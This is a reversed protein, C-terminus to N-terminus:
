SIKRLATLAEEMCINLLAEVDGEGSLGAAGAHGGGDCNMEKGIKMFFNALNFGMKVIGHKARASIRFREENQSGVFAVDAGLRILANCVDSEFAGIQSIAVICKGTSEMKLRQAGKLMSIKRSYDTAHEEDLVSFVEEMAVGSEEMIKSFTVLAQSNAHRFGATDTMIGVLLAKGIDDTIKKGALKLLEYVIEACSNKNEDCYYLDTKWEDTKIHHDLIIPNEIIHECDGLQSQSSADVIIVRDYDSLNPDEVVVVDLAKKLFIGSKSLGELAGITVDPFAKSMAIASGLADPDANSHVLVCKKGKQLEDLIRDLM